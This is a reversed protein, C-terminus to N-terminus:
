NQLDTRGFHWFDFFRLVDLTLNKWIDLASRNKLLAGGIYRQKQCDKLPSYWYRTLFVGLKLHGRSTKECFGNSYLSKKRTKPVSCHIKPTDSRNKHAGAGICPHVSKASRGKPWVGLFNISQLQWFCSFHRKQPNQMNAIHVHACMQAGGLFDFVALVTM